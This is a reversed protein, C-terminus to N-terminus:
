LYLTIRLRLYRQCGALIVKGSSWIKVAAHPKRLSKEVVQFIIPILMDTRSFCPFIKKWVGKTKDYVVHCMKTAILHLDIHSCTHFMTVVNRIQLDIPNSEDGSEANTENGDIGNMIEVTEAEDDALDVFLNAPSQEAM